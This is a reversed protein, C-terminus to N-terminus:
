GNGSFNPPKLRGPPGAEGPAPGRSERLKRFKEKQEDTLVKEIEQNLKERIQRLLDVM